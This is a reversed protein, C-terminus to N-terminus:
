MHVMWTISIMLCLIGLFLGLWYQLVWSDNLEHQIQITRYEKDLMLVGARVKRMVDNYHRREKNIVVILQDNCSKKLVDRSELEKAENAIERVTRARILVKNKYSELESRDIKKPRTYFDYILDLPLAPLGIGGFLVFLFWSIFSM